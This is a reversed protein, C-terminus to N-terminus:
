LYPDLLQKCWFQSFDIQIYLFITALEIFFHRYDQLRLSLSIDRGLSNHKYQLLKERFRIIKIRFVKEYFVYLLCFQSTSVIKWIFARCKDCYEHRPLIYMCRRRKRECPEEEKMKNTDFRRVKQDESVILKWNFPFLKVRLQEQYLNM